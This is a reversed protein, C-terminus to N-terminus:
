GSRGAITSNLEFEICGSSPKELFDRLEGILTRFDAAARVARTM